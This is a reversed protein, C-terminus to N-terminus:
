CGNYLLVNPSGAGPNTIIGQHGTAVLLDRIQQPSYTPHRSRLVAAEGAVHPCAMSTGSLVRTATPAGIWASTVADGPAFIDCCTGFNSFSARVDVQNEGQSTTDSAAVTICSAIGAPYFNCANANSNGAAVVIIVGANVAANCPGTLGGESPGGLSMSIIKANNNGPYNVVWNIGNIIWAYQGSGGDSLVKVAILNVNKAIGWTTGGITGACHTGHGNGDTNGGGAFNNGLIARGQFDNHGTYISTDLVFVNIGSGLNAGNYEYTAPVGDAISSTHSTRALGWTAGNQVTDCVIHAMVNCNIKEVLPDTQLHSIAQESFIGAFGRYDAGMDYKYMVTVGTAEMIDWHKQADERSTNWKYQVIWEGKRCTPDDVDLLPVWALAVAVLALVALISKM